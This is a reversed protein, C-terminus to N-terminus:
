SLNDDTFAADAMVLQFIKPYLHVKEEGLLDQAIRAGEEMNEDEDEQLAQVTKYVQILKDAGLAEELQARSEELRGFLDFDGVDEGDNFESDSDEDDEGLIESMIDDASEDPTQPNENDVSHSRRVDSDEDEQNDGDVDDEEKNSEDEDDEDGSGHEGDDGEEDDDGSKGDMVDDETDDVDGDNTDGRSERDSSLSFKVPSKKVEEESDEILLSQMTERVSMLDALDEDEEEDFNEEEDEDKPKDDDKEGEQAEGDDEKDETDDDDGDAKEVAKEMSSCVDEMDYDDEENVTSMDDLSKVRVQPTEANMTRFLSALDPESCTRLLERHGIDFSGMTIGLALGTKRKENEPYETIVVNDEGKEKNTTKQKSEENDDELEVKEFLSGAGESKVSVPVGQGFQMPKDPKQLLVPKPFVLPKEAIPPKREPLPPKQQVANVSKSIEEQPTEVQDELANKTDSPESESQKNSLSDNIVEKAPSEIQKVPSARPSSKGKVPSSSESRKSEPITSPDSPAAETPSLPPTNQNKSEAVAKNQDATRITITGKRVPSKSITITAGVAPTAPHEGTSSASSAGGESKDSAMTQEALPVGQLANIVTEGPRGWQRRASEPNVIVKDRASTVEMQSATQELTLQGLDLSPAAGWQPRSSEPEQAEALKIDGGAGWKSRASEKAEKDGPPGKQNLKRLIEDKQKQMPTRPREEEELVVKPTVGIAGLVNTMAPAPPSPSAAPVVRPTAGIANMAGTMPVAPSPKVPVGPRQRMERMQRQQEFLEQKKKELVSARQKAWDEAQKKLDDAKKKREAAADPNKDSSIKAQINRRENYNQQRIQKLKELYEQEERNRASAASSPRQQQQQQQQDNVVGRNGSPPRGQVPSPSPGFMQAQGRYKNNAAEKKRNIFDDVLRAREEAQNQARQNHAAYVPSPEPARRWVPAPKPAGPLPRPAAMYSAAPAKAPVGEQRQRIDRNQQLKDLYENYHDYKGRQQGAANGNYDGGQGVVPRPAPAPAPVPKVNDKEDKSSRDSDLSGLLNNWGDERARNIRAMKQKEVLDKHRKEYERRKQDDDRKRLEERRKREKEMLEQKRKQLDQSSSPRSGAASGPRSGAASGPRSGSASGPRSGASGPRKRVDAPARNEKSKRVVPQGYIRSPDYKKAAAAVAPGGVDGRNRAASPPRSAPNPPPPLARGLKHGHMITHSFESELQDSTLFKPIRQSIIPKKLISNISPRDRPARKFLQAILNRLEYSYKPSLPPYSGRIIKLVLNKMNGAEFAHKLTALEYVVCGLSWVDSKNNYPKNECIEPSLYYPTGICTRALEVTSNLVKAIGFDGLQVMGKSTLFINQSKIDRHLIKRDHIHKIALCMQVFWDLIQEEGFLIGRQNNIKAYLDGGSCFDMVIYLCGHEEFSERYAVINPHKLQALVSVEKRAESREKSNMRMISIEKIVCQSGDKKLKVLDAKGFAGEGIKRVKVYKDM